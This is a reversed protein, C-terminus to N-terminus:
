RRGDSSRPPVRRAQSRITDIETEFLIEAGVGTSDLHGGPELSIIGHLRTWSLLALMLLENSFGTLGDRRAWASLQATSAGPRAPAQPEGTGAPALADVVVAMSRSAAPVTREAALDKGSGMSTQFILRYAGPIDARASIDWVRRGNRGSPRLDVPPATAM